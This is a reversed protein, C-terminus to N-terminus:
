MLGIFDNGLLGTFCIRSFCITCKWWRGVLLRWGIIVSSAERSGPSKRGRAVLGLLTEGFHERGSAVIGVVQVGGTEVARVILRGDEGDVKAGRVAEGRKVGRM